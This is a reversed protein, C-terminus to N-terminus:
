LINAFIQYQNLWKQKIIVVELTLKMSTLKIHLKIFIPCGRMFKFLTTLSPLIQVIMTEANGYDLRCLSKQSLTVPYM